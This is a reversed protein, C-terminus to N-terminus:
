YSSSKSHKGKGVFASEKREAIKEQDGPYRDIHHFIPIDTNIPELCKRSVILNAM